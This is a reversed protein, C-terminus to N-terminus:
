GGCAKMLYGRPRCTTSVPTHSETPLRTPANSPPSSPESSSTAMCCRSQIDGGHLTRHRADENYLMGLGCEYDTVPNPNPEIVPGNKDGCTRFPITSELCNLGASSGVVDVMVTQSTLDITSILVEVVGDGNNQAFYLHDHGDLDQHNWGAGQLCCWGDPCGSVSVTRLSFVQCFGANVDNTCICVYVCICVNTFLYLPMSLYVHSTRVKGSNKSVIAGGTVTTELVWHSYTNGSYQIVLLHNKRGM